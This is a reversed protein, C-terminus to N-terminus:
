CVWEEHGLPRRNLEDRVDRWTPMHLDMLDHFRRNHTPEHIHVLEHVVTYELCPRPKKALETNLRITQRTSNCSGWKTKMRQVFFKNVEVGIRPEWRPLLEDVAERVQNRYWLSLVQARKATDSGPRVSLTLTQHSVEVVPPADHEVVRLLM